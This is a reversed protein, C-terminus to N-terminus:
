SSAPVPARGLGEVVQAGHLHLFLSGPVVLKSRRFGSGVIVYDSAAVAADVLIPWGPPLGIPTIAGFEMGSERVADEMRAFSAKKVGLTNRVIGNVDIKTTALVVCAAFQRGEGRRVEIIVCNAAQEPLVGYRECFAATDSVEPDIECVGIEGTKPLSRVADAVAPAVLDLREGVSVIELTGIKSKVSMNM